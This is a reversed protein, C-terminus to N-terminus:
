SQSVVEREPLEKDLFEYLEREHPSGDKDIVLRRVNGSPAEVACDIRGSKQGYRWARLEFRM